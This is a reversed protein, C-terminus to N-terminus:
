SQFLYVQHIMLICKQKRLVDGAEILRAWDDDQLKGTRLKTGEIMGETSILRSALQERSM